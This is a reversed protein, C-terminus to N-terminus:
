LVQLGSEQQTHANQIPVSSSFPEKHMYDIQYLRYLLSHKSEVYGDLPISFPAGMINLVQELQLPIHYRVLVDKPNPVAAIVRAALMLKEWTKGLNMIHIGENNRKYIYPEM